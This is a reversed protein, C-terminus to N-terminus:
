ALSGCICLKHFSESLSDSSLFKSRVFKAISGVHSLVDEAIKM